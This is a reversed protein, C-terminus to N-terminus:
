VNSDFNWLGDDPEFEEPPERDDSLFELNPQHDQKIYKYYSPMWWDYVTVSVIPDYSISAISQKTATTFKM